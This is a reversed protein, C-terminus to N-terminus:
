TKGFLLESIIEQVVPVSVARGLCAYRQGRSLERGDHGFRTWDRPFGQLKEIETPTLYRLPVDDLSEYDRTTRMVYPGTM